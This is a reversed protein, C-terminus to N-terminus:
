VGFRRMQYRSNRNYHSKIVFELWEEKKSYRFLSRDWPAGCPSMTKILYSCNMTGVTWSKTDAFHIIEIRALSM